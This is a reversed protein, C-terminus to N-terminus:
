KKEIRVKETTNGWTIELIYFGRQFESTDIYFIENDIDTQQVVVVGYLDVLKVKQMRYPSSINLVGQTPNPYVDARSGRIEDEFVPDCKKPLVVLQGGNLVQFGPHLAVREGAELTVIGGNEVLFSVGQAYIASSSRQIMERGSKIVDTKLYVIDVCEQAAATLPLLLSFALVFFSLRPGNYMKFSNFM